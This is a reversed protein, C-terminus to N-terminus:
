LSRWVLDRGGSLHPALRDIGNRHRLLVGFVLPLLCPEYARIYFVMFFGVILYRACEAFSCEHGGTYNYRLVVAFAPSIV